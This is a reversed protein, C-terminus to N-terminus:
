DDGRLRPGMRRLLEAGDVLALKKKLLWRWPNHTGAQAPVVSLISHCREFEAISIRSRNEGEHDM